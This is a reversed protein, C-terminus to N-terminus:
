YKFIIRYNKPPPLSKKQINFNYLRSTIDLKVDFQIGDFYTNFSMDDDLNSGEGGKQLDLNINSWQRKIKQTKNKSENRRNRKKYKKHTISKNERLIVEGDMNGIQANSVNNLGQNNLFKTTDIVDDNTPVSTKGKLM